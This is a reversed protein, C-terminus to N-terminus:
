SCGPLWRSTKVCCYINSYIFSKCLCIKTGRTWGVRPDEVTTHLEYIIIMWEKTYVYQHTWAKCNTPAILSTSTIWIFCKNTFLLPVFMLSLKMQSVFPFDYAVALQVWQPPTLPGVCPLLHGQDNCWSALDVLGRRPKWHTTDSAGPTSFSQWLLQPNAAIYIQHLRKCVCDNGGRRESFGRRKGGKEGAAAPSSWWATQGENSKWPDRNKGFILTQIFASVLTQIKKYPPM